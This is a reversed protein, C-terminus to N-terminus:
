SMGHYSKYWDVFRSVGLDIDVQPEEGTLDELIMTSAWTKEVDGPQIPMMNLKATKGLAREVSQIFDMLRVPTENGINVIRFPAVDSAMHTKELLSASAPDPSASALGVIGDVIDDIYTFDRYLEGQGYVDIPEDKLIADVFKFLAMDPRGWPGYVTFFRLMTTPIDYLHAYSHAMAEGAKKTAAYFSMPADAKADEKYPMDKNAGYVSSTSAILLHAPKSHRAAELVEFTGILNAEVYSRPEDISYRVGAQAALHIVVDPSMEHMLAKIFGEDEVRAEYFLFNPSSEIEALRAEKLKPDYYQTMADIGVVRWGDALYRKATHFGIFGAAGTIFVTQVDPGEMARELRFIPVGRHACFNGLILFFFELKQSNEM